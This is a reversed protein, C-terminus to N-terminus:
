RRRGDRWRMTLRRLGIRPSASVAPASSRAAAGALDRRVARLDRRPEDRRLSLRRSAASLQRLRLRVPRIKRAEADYRRIFSTPASEVVIAVKVDSATSRRTPPRARRRLDDLRVPDVRPRPLRRRRRNPARAGPVPQSRLGRHRPEAAHRSRRTSQVDVRRRHVRLRPGARLARPSQRPHIAALKDRSSALGTRTVFPAVYLDLGEAAVAPALSRFVKGEARGYGFGPLVLLAERKPAAPAVSPRVMPGACAGLFAAVVIVPLRRRM